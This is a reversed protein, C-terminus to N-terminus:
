LVSGFAAIVSVIVAAAIAIPPADAFVVAIVAALPLAAMCVAIFIWGGPPRPLLMALLDLRWESSAAKSSCALVWLGRFFM